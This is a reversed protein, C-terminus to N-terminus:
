LGLGLIKTFGGLIDSTVGSVVTSTAAIEAAQEAERAQKAKFIAEAEDNMIGVELDWVRRETNKQATIIDASKVRSVSEIGEIVMSSSIDIGASAYATGREAIEAVALSELQKVERAGVDRLDAIRAKGIAVNTRAVQAEYELKDSEAMGTKYQGYAKLGTGALPLLAPVLLAAPGTALALLAASTTKSADGM